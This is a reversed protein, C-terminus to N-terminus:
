LSVDYLLKDYPLKDNPLPALLDCSRIAMLSNRCSMNKLVDKIKPGSNETLGRFRASRTITAVKLSPLNFNNTRTTLFIM